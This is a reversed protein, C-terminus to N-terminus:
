QGDRRTIYPFAVRFPPTVCPPATYRNCGCDRCLSVRERQRAAWSEIAGFASELWAFIMFKM